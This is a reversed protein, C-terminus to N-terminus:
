KGAQKLQERLGVVGFVSAWLGILIGVSHAVEKTSYGIAPGALFVFLSVLLAVIMLTYWFNPNKM